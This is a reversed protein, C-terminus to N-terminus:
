HVCGNRPQGRGRPRDNRGLFSARQKAGPACAHPLHYRAPTRSLAGACAEGPLGARAARRCRARGRGLDEQGGYGLAVPTRPAAASMPWGSTPHRKSPGAHRSKAQEGTITSGPLSHPHLSPALGPHATLRGRKEGRPHERAEGPPAPDQHAKNGPPWPASSLGSKGVQGTVGAGM